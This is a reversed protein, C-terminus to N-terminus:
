RELFQGRLVERIGKSEQASVQTGAWHMPVATGANFAGPIAGSASVFSGAASSDKSGQRSRMEFPLPSALVSTFSQAPSPSTTSSPSRSPRHSPPAPPQDGAQLLGPPLAYARPPPRYVSDLSQRPADGHLSALEEAADEGPPGTAASVANSYAVALPPGLNLAHPQGPSSNASGWYVSGAQSGQSSSSMSSLSRQAQMASSAAQLELPASVVPRPKNSARRSGQPAISIPKKGGNDFTPSKRLGGFIRKTFGGGTKVSPHLTSGASTTSGLSPASSKRYTDITGNSYNSWRRDGDFASARRVSPPPETNLLVELFSDGAEFEDRHARPDRPEFGPRRRSNPYSYGSSRPSSSSNGVREREREVHKRYWADEDDTPSDLGGSISSVESDTNYSLPPALSVTKTEAPPPWIALGSGVISTRKSVAERPPSRPLSQAPPSPAATTAAEQEQQQQRQEPSSMTMSLRKSLRASLRNAANGGGGALFPPEVQSLRHSRRANAASSRATVSKIVIPKGKKPTMSRPRESSSNISRASPSDAHAPNLRSVSREPTMPDLSARPSADSDEAASDFSPEGNWLQDYKASPRRPPPTSPNTSAAVPDNQLLHVSDKPPLPPSSSISPSVASFSLRRPPTSPISSPTSSPLSSTSDVAGVVPADTTPLLGISAAEATTRPSPEAPAADHQPEFAEATAAASTQLGAGDAEDVVDLPAATRRFYEREWDSDDLLPSGNKGKVQEALEEDKKEESWGSASSDPSERPHGPSGYRTTSSEGTINSGGTDESASRNRQPYPGNAGGMWSAGGSTASASKRRQHGSLGRAEASPDLYGMSCRRAPGMASSARRTSPSGRGSPPSLPRSGVSWTSMNSVTSHNRAHGRPSLGVSERRRPPSQPDSTLPTYVTRAPTLVLPKPHWPRAPSTSLTTSGSISARHPDAPHASRAPVASFRRLAVVTSSSDSPSSSIAQRIAAHRNAEAQLTARRQLLFSQEEFASRPSFNDFSSLPPTPPATARPTKRIDITSSALEEETPPTDPLVPSKALNPPHDPLYATLDVVEDEWAEDNSDGETADEYVSEGTTLLSDLTAMSARSSRGSARLIDKSRHRTASDQLYETSATALPATPSTALPPSPLAGVKPTTPSRGELRSLSNEVDRRREEDEDRREKELDDEAAVTEGGSSRSSGVSGSSTSEVMEASAPGDFALDQGSLSDPGDLRLAAAAAVPPALAAM